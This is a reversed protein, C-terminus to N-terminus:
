CDLKLSTRYFPLDVHYGSLGSTFDKNLKDIRSTEEKPYSISIIAAELDDDNFNWLGRPSKKDWYLYRPLHERYEIVHEGYANWTKLYLWVLAREKRCLKQDSLEELMQELIEREVTADQKLQGDFGVLVSLELADEISADNRSIGHLIDFFM